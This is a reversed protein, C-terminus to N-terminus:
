GMYLGQASNAGAQAQMRGPSTTISRMSIRVFGGLGSSSDGPKFLEFYKDIPVAELIDNVFIGSPLSEHSM